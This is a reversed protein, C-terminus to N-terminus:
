FARKHIRTSLAGEVLVELITSHKVIINICHELLFIEVNKLVYYFLVIPLYFDKLLVQIIIHGFGQLLQLTIPM